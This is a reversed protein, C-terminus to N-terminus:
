LFLAPACWTGRLTKHGTALATSLLTQWEQLPRGGNTGAAKTIARKYVTLKRLLMDLGAGFRGSLQLSIVTVGVGGKAKGYKNMKAREAQAAAPVEEGGKRIASSYHLVEEDVVTFDLRIHPLGPHGM